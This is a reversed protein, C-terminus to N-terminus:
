QVHQLMESLVMSYIRQSPSRILLKRTEVLTLAVIPHKGSLGSHRTRFAMAYKLPM